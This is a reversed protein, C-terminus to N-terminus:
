AGVQAVDVVYATKARDWWRFCPEGDAPPLIEWVVSDNAITEEIRDGPRPEFTIEAAKVVISHRRVAVPIGNEDNVREVNARRVGTITTRSSGRAYTMASGAAQQTRALLWAAGDDLLSM